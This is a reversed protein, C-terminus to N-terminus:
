RRRAAALGAAGLGLLALTAPEPTVDLTYYGNQFHAGLFNVDDFGTVALHLDGSAPVTGELRSLVGQGGDDDSMILAGSDDFWGLITDFDGDTVEAVFPTGPALCTFTFFDLADGAGMGITNDIYSDFTAELPFSGPGMDWPFILALDMMKDVFDMMLPAGSLDYVDLFWRFAGTEGHPLGASDSLGDFDFDDFGSVVLRISGDANVPLGYVGSAFGDGLHSGDDDTTLIAGVEDLVGLTTDPGRGLGSIADSVSWVGSTLITREAFNENPETAGLPGAALLVAAAILRVCTGARRM